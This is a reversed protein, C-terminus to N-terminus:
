LPDVEDLLEGGLGDLDGRGPRGPEITHLGDTGIGPPRTPYFTRSTDAVGETAQWDNFSIRVHRGTIERRCGYLFITCGRQDKIRVPGSVGDYGTLGDVRYHWDNFTRVSLTGHGKWKIEM